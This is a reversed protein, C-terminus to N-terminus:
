QEIDFLGDTCIAKVTSKLGQELREAITSVDVSEFLCGYRRHGEKVERLVHNLIAKRDICGLNHLSPSCNRPATFKDVKEINRTLRSGMAHHTSKPAPGPDEEDSEFDSDPQINNEHQTSQTPLGNEATKTQSLANPADSRNFLFRFRRWLQKRHNNGDWIDTQAEYHLFWHFFAELHLDTLPSSNNNGSARRAWVFERALDRTISVKWAQLHEKDSTHPTCYLYHDLDFKKILFFILWQLEGAFNRYQEPNTAKFHDIADTETYKNRAAM